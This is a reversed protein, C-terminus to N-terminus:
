RVVSYTTRDLSTTTKSRQFVIKVRKKLIHAKTLAAKQTGGSNSCAIGAPLWGIFSCLWTGRNLAKYSAEVQSRSMYYTQAPWYGASQTTVGTPLGAIDWVLGSGFTVRRGAGNATVSADDPLDVATGDALVLDADPSASDVVTVGPPLFSADGDDTGVVQESDDTVAASAVFSWPGGAVQASTGSVGSAGTVTATWSYTQGDTLASNPIRWTPSTSEASAVTAGASNKVSYSYSSGPTIEDDQDAYVSLTPNLSLTAGDSPDPLIGKAAWNGAGFVYSTSGSASVVNLYHQGATAMMPVQFSTSSTTSVAQTNTLTDSQVQVTANAAAQREVTVTCIIVDTSIADTWSGNAYQPCIVKPTNPNAYWGQVDFVFNTTDGLNHLMIKGDAGVPVTITNTRISDFDYNIATPNPETTGSAWVRAYGGGVGGHAVTLSLVVAKLGSAMAPIGAQGAVSVSRIENKGWATNGTARSDYLRSAGPTFAAGSKGQATFYGQVEVVLNVASLRNYVTLKGSASLAVQSQISTATGGAYNLSTSPRDAGSAYPTLYGVTDTTNIAILNVIAASAGAPIGSAGTVQVDVSGGSPIVAKTAGLGSRTDVIRKGGVPVFGGPATGSSNSTYYGQVDLILRVANQTRVQITGDAAVALVSSFSTNDNDVGGYIGMSTATQTPDPRGYLVAQSPIDAVTAVLAVAGVTGDSPVGALGSVQITRWTNAVM